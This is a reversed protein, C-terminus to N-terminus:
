CDARAEGRRGERGRRVDSCARKHLERHLCRHLRVVRQEPCGRQDRRRILLLSVSRSFFLLISVRDCIVTITNSSVDRIGEVCADKGSAVCTGRFRIATDVISCVRVLADSRAEGCGDTAEQYLCCAGHLSDTHLSAVTRLLIKVPDAFHLASCFFDVVVVLFGAYELAHTALTLLSLQQRHLLCVVAHHLYRSGRGSLRRRHGYRTRHGIPAAWHDRTATGAFVVVKV